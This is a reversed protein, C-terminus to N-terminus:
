GPRRFELFDLCGDDDACTVVAEVCGEVEGCAAADFCSALQSQIVHGLCGWDAVPYDPRAAPCRADYDAVVAEISASECELERICARLLGDAPRGVDCRDDDVACAEFTRRQTDDLYRAARDCATWCEGYTGPSPFICSYRRNSCVRHCDVTLSTALLSGCMGDGACVANDLCAGLDDCTSGMLCEGVQERRDPRLCGWRSPEHYPHAACEEEDLTGRGDAACRALVDCHQSILVEDHCGLADICQRAQTVGCADFAFCEKWTLAHAPELSEVLAECVARCDSGDGCDECLTACTPMPEDLTDCGAPALALLALLYSFPLPHRM